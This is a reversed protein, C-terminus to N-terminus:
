PNGPPEGGSDKKKEKQIKRDRYMKGVTFGRERLQQLARTVIYDVETGTRGSKFVRKALVVVEKRNRCQEFEKHSLLNMADEDINNTSFDMKVVAELFQQKIGLYEKWVKNNWHIEVLIFGIYKQTWPDIVGVRVYKYDTTFDLTELVYHSTLVPRDTPAIFILSNKRMRLTEALVQVQKESRYSGVGFEFPSEDRIFWDGPKSKSALNLLSNNDFVINKPDFDKKFRLAIEQAVSSKFSGTKGKITLVLHHELEGDMREQVESFWDNTLNRDPRFCNAFSPEIKVREQFMLKQTKSQKFKVM